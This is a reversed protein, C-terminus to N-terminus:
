GRELWGSDNVGAGDARACENGRGGGVICLLVTARSNLFDRLAGRFTALQLDAKWISPEYQIRHRWAEFAETLSQPSRLSQLGVSIKREPADRRWAVLLPGQQTDVAAAIEQGVVLDYHRVLYDCDEFKDPGDPFEDLPWFLSMVARDRHRANNPVRSDPTEYFTSLWAQCVAKYYAAEAIMPRRTFVVVSTGEYRQRWDYGRFAFSREPVLRERVHALLTVMYM